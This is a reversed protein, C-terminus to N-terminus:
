PFSPHSNLQQKLRLVHPYIPSSAPISSLWKLAKPPVVGPSADLLCTAAIMREQDVLPRIKEIAAYLRSAELFRGKDQLKQSLQDLLTEDGPNLLVQKHLAILTQHEAHREQSSAASYPADPRHTHPNLLLAMPLLGAFCVGLLFLTHHRHRESTAQTAGWAMLGSLLSLIM